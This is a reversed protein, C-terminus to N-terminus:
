CRRGGESKGERGRGALLGSIDGQRAKPRRGRDGLGEPWRRDTKHHVRSQLLGSAFQLLIGTRGPREHAEQPNEACAAGGGRSISSIACIM